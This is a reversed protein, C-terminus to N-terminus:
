VAPFFRFTNVLNDSSIGWKLEGDGSTLSEWSVRASTTPDDHWLIWPQKSQDQLYNYPYVYDYVVIGSFSFERKAIILYFQSLLFLLTTGLM